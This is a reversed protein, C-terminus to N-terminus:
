QIGLLEKALPGFLALMILLLLGLAKKGLKQKAEELFKKAESDIGNVLMDKMLNTMNPNKGKFNDLATLVGKLRDAYKNLKSDIDFGEHSKENYKVGGKKPDTDQLNIADQVLAIKANLQRKRLIFEDDTEGAKKELENALAILEKKKANLQDAPVNKALEVLLKPRGAKRLELVMRFVDVPNKELEDVAGYERDTREISYQFKEKAYGSASNLAANEVSKLQGMVSEELNLRLADSIKARRLESSLQKWEEFDFGSPDIGLIILNEALNQKSSSNKSDVVHEIQLIVEDPLLKKFQSADLRQLIVALAEDTLEGNRFLDKGNLDEKISEIESAGEQVLEDSTKPSGDAKIRSVLADQLDKETQLKAKFADTVIKNIEEGGAKLLVDQYRKIFLDRLVVFRVDINDKYQQRESPTTRISPVEDELAQIFDEHSIGLNFLQEHTVPSDDKHHAIMDFSDNHELVIQNVVLRMDGMQDIRMRIEEAIEARKQDAFEALVQQSAEQSALGDQLALSIRDDVSKGRETLIETIALVRIEDTSMQVNDVGLAADIRKIRAELVSESIFNAECVRKAIAKTAVNDLVHNIQEETANLAIQKDLLKGVERPINGNNIGELVQTLDGQTNSNAIAEAVTKRTGNKDGEQRVQRQQIWGVREGNHANHFIIAEPGRVAQQTEPTMAPDAM